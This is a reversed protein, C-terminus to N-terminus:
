IRGVAIKKRQALTKVMRRELSEFPFWEAFCISDSYPLECKSDYVRAGSSSLEVVFGEKVLKRNKDVIQVQDYMEFKNTM